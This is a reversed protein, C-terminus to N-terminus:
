VNRMLYTYNNILYMLAAYSHKCLITKRKAKPANTIAPGLELETRDTKLLSAHQELAWASKFKFDACDCYIKATNSTYLRGEPDYQTKILINYRSGRESTVDFSFIVYLVNLTAKNRLFFKKFKDLISESKIEVYLDKLSVICGSSKEQRAQDINMLDSITWKKNFLGALIGAM